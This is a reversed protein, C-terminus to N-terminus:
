MNINYLMAEVIKKQEPTLKDPDDPDQEQENKDKRCFGPQQSFGDPFDCICKM